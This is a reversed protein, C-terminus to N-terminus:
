SSLAAFKQLDHVTMSIKIKAKYLLESVRKWAYQGRRLGLTEDAEGKDGIWRNAQLYPTRTLLNDNAAISASLFSSNIGDRGKAMEEIISEVSYIKDQIVFFHAKGEVSSGTLANVFALYALQKKIKEWRLQLMAETTGHINGHGALLQMVARYEHDNLRM